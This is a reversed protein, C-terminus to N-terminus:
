VNNKFFEFGCYDCTNLDTGEPRAAGCSGCTLTEVGSKAAEYKSSSSLANGLINLLLNNTNNSSGSENNNQSEM